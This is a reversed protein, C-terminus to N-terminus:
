AGRVLPAFERKLAEFSMDDEDEETAPRVPPKRAASSPASARPQASALKKANQEAVRKSEEIAQQARREAELAAKRPALVSRALAVARDQDFYWEGPQVGAQQELPTLRAGAQRLFSQPAQLIFGSVSAWDEDRMVSFDPHQKAAEVFSQITQQVVQEVQQHQDEPDPRHMEERLRLEAERKGLAMERELTPLAQRLELGYALWAEAFQQDDPEAALKFLTDIEQKMSSVSAKEIEVSAKERRLDAREYELKVGKGLFASVLEASAKPIFVGEDTVKAGPVVIEQGNYRIAYPVDAVPPPAEGEAGPTAPQAAADPAPPADAQAEGEKGVFRGQADRGDGRDEGAREILPEDTEPAPEAPADSVVPPTEPAVGEPAEDEEDDTDLWRDLASLDDSM